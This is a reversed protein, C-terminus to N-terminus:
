AILRGRRKHLLYHLTTTPLIEKYIPTSPAGMSGKLPRELMEGSSKRLRDEWPRSLVIYSPGLFCIVLCHSFVHKHTYAPIKICTNNVRYVGKSLIVAVCFGYLNIFIMTDACTSPLFFDRHKELKGLRVSM